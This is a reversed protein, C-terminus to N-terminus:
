NEELKEYILCRGDPIRKTEKWGGFINQTIKKGCEDHSLKIGGTNLPCFLCETPRKDVTMRFVKM